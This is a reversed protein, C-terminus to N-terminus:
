EPDFRILALPDTDITVAIPGGPGTKGAFSRGSINASPYPCGYPALATVENGSTAM